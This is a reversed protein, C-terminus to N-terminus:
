AEEIDEDQGETRRARSRKELKAEEKEREKVPDYGADSEDSGANSNEDGSSQLDKIDYKPKMNRARRSSRVKTSSVPDQAAPVDAEAESGSTSMADEESSNDVRKSKRSSNKSAPKNGPKRYPTDFSSHLFKSRDASSQTNSM